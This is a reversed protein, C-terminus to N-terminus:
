AVCCGTKYIPLGIREFDAMELILAAIFPILIHSLWYFDSLDAIKTGPEYFTSIDVNAYIRHCNQEQKCWTGETKLLYAEIQYRIM